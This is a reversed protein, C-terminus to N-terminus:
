KIEVQGQPMDYLPYDSHVACSTPDGIQSWSIQDAPGNASTGNDRVRAAVPWGTFEEKEGTVPNTGEGQTIWGSVWAENGVVSVCDIVAHFGEGKAFRDTYEGSVSGDSYQIATLSFNGDYGPHVGFYGVCIDPGGASVRHAIPSAASAAAVLMLALALTIALALPLGTGHKRTMRFM